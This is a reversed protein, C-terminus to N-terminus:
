SSRPAAPPPTARSRTNTSQREQGSGIIRRTAPVGPTDKLQLKKGLIAQTAADAPGSALLSIALAALTGRIITNM